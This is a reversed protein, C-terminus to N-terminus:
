GKRDTRQAHHNPSPTEAQGDTEGQPKWISAAKYGRLFILVANRAAGEDDIEYAFPEGMLPEVGLRIIYVRKVGPHWEFRFQPFAPTKIHFVRADHPAGGGIIPVDM